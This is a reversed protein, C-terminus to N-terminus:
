SRSSVYLLFIKFIWLYILLFTMEFSIQLPKEPQYFFRFNRYALNEKVCQLSQQITSSRKSYCFISAVFAICIIETGRNAHVCKHHVTSSLHPINPKQKRENGWLSLFIYLSLCSLEDWNTYKKHVFGDINVKVFFLRDWFRALNQMTFDINCKDPLLLKLAACCLKQIIRTM